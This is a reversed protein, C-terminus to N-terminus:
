QNIEGKNHPKLKDVGWKGQARLVQEIVDRVCGKGGDYASIYKSVSKIEEAADAPCVPIGVKSMVEYDPLDDGMYLVEELKLGYKYVFDMLDDNKDRSNLYIDTIGLESFRIRVSESKGGTIIGIILGQIHAFRTAYGDKTNMTRLLDGTPHLLVQPNAFVGDVDFVMAKVQPLLEKFNM